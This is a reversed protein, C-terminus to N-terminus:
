RPHQLDDPKAIQIGPIQDFQPDATAVLNVSARFGAALHLSDNTLLGHERQLKLAHAFDAGEIALLVFQGALLDEVEQAYGTLQRVLARDHSLAKSPNSGSLGRSQAEQMMRRHCFEAVAVTTLVGTIEQRACRELLRRSQFSMGRRAYILVNADALVQAGAPIADLTM